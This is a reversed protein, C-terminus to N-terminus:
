ELVMDMFFFDQRITNSEDIIESSRVNPVFDSM